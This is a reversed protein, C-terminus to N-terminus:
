TDYEVHDNLWWTHAGGGIFVAMRSGHREHGIPNVSLVDHFPQRGTKQKRHASDTEDYQVSSVIWGSGFQVSYEEYGDSEYAYQNREECGPYEHAHLQRSIQLTSRLFCEVFKFTM